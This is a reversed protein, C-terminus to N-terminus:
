GNEKDLRKKLEYAKRIIIAVLDGAEIDNNKEIVEFAFSAADISYRGLENFQSETLFFARYRCELM